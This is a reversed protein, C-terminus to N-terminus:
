VKHLHFNEKGKLEVLVQRSRSAVKFCLLLSFFANACPKFLLVRDLLVGSFVRFNWFYNFHVIVVVVIVLCNKSRIWTMKSGQGGPQRDGISYTQSM